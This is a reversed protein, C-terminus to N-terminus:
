KVEIPERAWVWVKVPTNAHGPNIFTSVHKFGCQPLIDDLYEQGAGTTCVVAASGTNRIRQEVDEKTTPGANKQTAWEGGVKHFHSMKVGDPPDVYNFNGLESMGCCFQTGLVQLNNVKPKPVPVSYGCCCKEEPKLGGHNM